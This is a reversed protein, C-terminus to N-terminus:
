RARREGASHNQNLTAAFAAFAHASEARREATPVHGAGAISVFQSGAVAQHIAQCHRMPVIPDATGCLVLTPVRLTQVWSRSDFEYLQPLASQMAPGLPAPSVLLVPGGRRRWVQGLGAVALWETNAATVPESPPDQTRLGAAALREQWAPFHPSLVCAPDALRERFCLCASEIVIGLLATPHRQAYLQALWGGGSMGWFVWAGLGRQRRVSEIRDVMMVLPTAPGRPSQPNVCVATAQATVALLEATPPGFFDVPHAACVTLGGPQSGGPAESVFVALASNSDSDM